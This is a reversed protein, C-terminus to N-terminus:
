FTERETHMARERDSLPVADSPVIAAEHGNGGLQKRRATVMGAEQAAAIFDGPIARSPRSTIARVIEPDLKPTRDARLLGNTEQETDTLQTYCFGALAPSDLVANVLEEYKSLLEDDSGVSGYGFWPMGAEPAYTIGGFESLVVPREGRPTNDLVARHYQPRGQLAHDVAEPTGWRDRLAAGDLAYDHVGWIDGAVHEWGDNGIVPRTRDIAKTLHYISRVFDRQAPDGPLDPVGWSENFPVWTVISPHNFQRRVVEIWERTFREVATETFEYANAMEAWVLVGLRDCWYLFREDEVKQHIRVGNFGLALILEVERKIAEESPAALHSDPWYNQALVLRLYKPRGNLLFLGDDAEVSRLGVYSRINDLVTGSEDELIMEADILNPQSPTWLLRRGVMGGSDAELRMDRGSEQHRVLYTDDALLDKGASLRLRLRLASDPERNLRVSMGLNGRRPDPTWTFNSIYTEGVAEAWVPQWIGSTRHYWIRAPEPEWFQKGRPQTLDLPQDESRVVLVQEDGDVLSDTVDITFSSHGGEHRDVLRGNLWVRASYDVAGFHLLLRRGREFGGVESIRFIRRYWSIPHYSPDGIESLKSEPPLPVQITRTYPAFDEHWGAGEGIGADDFAFGWPGTLDLWGARRRQPSPHM